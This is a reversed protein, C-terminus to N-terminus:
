PPILIAARLGRLRLGPLPCLPPTVRICGVETTDRLKEERHKQPSWITPDAGADLCPDDNLVGPAAGVRRAGRCRRGSPTRTTQPSWM